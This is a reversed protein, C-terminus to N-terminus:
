VIHSHVQHPCVRWPSFGAAVHVLQLYQFKFTLATILIQLGYILLLRAGAAFLKRLCYLLYHFVTLKSSSIIDLFLGLLNYVLLLNEFYNSVIVIVKSAKLKFCKFKSLSVTLNMQMGKVKM